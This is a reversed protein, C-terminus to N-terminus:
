SGRVRVTKVSRVAAMEADVRDADRRLRVTGQADVTEVVRALQRLADEHGSETALRVARGLKATALEVDDADWAALGEQIAAALEGQGTVHAVQRNIRTSLVLDDTWCARVPREPGGRGAVAVGVRAACMEEGVEGPPVEVSLHYIRAEAGWAGIPYDAVRASVPTARDTLPLISPHVQKLFRVRASIPTWLRLSVEAASKGMVAETMVRFDEALAAPEVLGDATGLLAGAVALLPEASWDRGVGRSDCVFRGACRGLTRTLEAQSQHENRGDTLLIGHKIQAPEAALLRDALELWTGIATGGDAALARVAARARDRTRATAPVMRPKDPYAMRGETTGAVVAFAVGDRIADIAVATARKAEAIKNGYMSSSCDIMIVQAATPPPGAPLGSGGTATVTIAADMVRGGEPLYENQDVQIEFDLQASM